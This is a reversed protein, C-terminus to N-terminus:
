SSFLSELNARSRSNALSASFVFEWLEMMVGEESVTSDLDLM